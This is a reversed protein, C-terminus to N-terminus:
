TAAPKGRHAENEVFRHIRERTAGDLDVFQVGMGFGGADPVNVIRGKVKIPQAEGPLTFRLEVQTGMPHPITNELFIGGVSLNGSRQFYLEEANSEEVWMEVPIREATRRDGADSM